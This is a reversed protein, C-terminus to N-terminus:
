KILCPWLGCICTTDVFSSSPIDEMITTTQTASLFIKSSDTRQDVPPNFQPYIM